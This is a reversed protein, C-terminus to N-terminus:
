TNISGHWQRFGCLVDQLEPSCILATRFKIVAFKVKGHPPTYIHKRTPPFDDM